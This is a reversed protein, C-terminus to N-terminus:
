LKYDLHQLQDSNSHHIVLCISVEDRRFALRVHVAIGDRAHVEHAAPSSTKTRAGCLRTSSLEVPQRARCHAPPRPAAGHLLQKGSLMLFYAPESSCLAHQLCLSQGEVGKSLTPM